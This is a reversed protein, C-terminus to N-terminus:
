IRKSVVGIDSNNDGWIGEINRDYSDENQTGTFDTVDDCVSYKFNKFVPFDSYTASNLVNPEIIDEVNNAPIWRSREVIMDDSIYGNTVLSTDTEIGINYSTNVLNGRVMILIKNGSEVKLVNPLTLYCIYWSDSAGIATTYLHVKEFSGNQLEKYCIMTITNPNYMSSSQGQISVSVQNFLSTKKFKIVSCKYSDGVAGRQKYNGISIIKESQLIKIKKDRDFHGFNLGQLPYFEKLNNDIDCHQLNFLTGSSINFVSNHSDTLSNVVATGEIKIIDTPNANPITINKPSSFELCSVKSIQYKESNCQNLWNSDFQNIYPTKATHTKMCEVGGFASYKEGALITKGVKTKDYDPYPTNDQTPTWDNINWPTNAAIDKNAIYLKHDKIVVDNEKYQKTQNFIQFGGSECGKKGLAYGVADFNQM